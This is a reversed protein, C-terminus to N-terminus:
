KSTREHCAVGEAMLPAMHHLACRGPCRPAFDCGKDPRRPSPPDGDLGAPLVGPQPLAAILSRSYPHRAEKLFANAEIDEVIRGAYFVIVRDVMRAVLDIDHTIVILTRARAALLDLMQRALPRDIASTPEDALILESQHATAAVILARQLMGGSWAPPRRNLMESSSSLGAQKLRDALEASSIHEGHSEWAEALQRGVSILPNLASMPNQSVFGIQRGRMRRPHAGPLPQGRFTISGSVVAASPLLGLIARALTTKGCGSEGIVAIREGHAVRLDLGRLVHADDPFRVHLDTIALGNM